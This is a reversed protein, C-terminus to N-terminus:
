IRNIRQTAHVFKNTWAVSRGPTKHIAIAADVVIEGIQNETM